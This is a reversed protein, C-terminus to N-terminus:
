FGGSLYGLVVRVNGSTDTIQISSLRGNADTILQGGAQTYGQPHTELASIRRELDSVQQETNQPHLLDM